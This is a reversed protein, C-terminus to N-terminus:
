QRVNTLNKLPAKQGIREGKNWPERSRTRNFNRSHRDWCLNALNAGLVIRAIDVRRKRTAHNNGRTAIADHAVVDDPTM